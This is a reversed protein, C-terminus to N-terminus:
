AGRSFGCIAKATTASFAPNPAWVAAGIARRSQWYQNMSRVRLGSGGGPPRIGSAKSGAERCAM